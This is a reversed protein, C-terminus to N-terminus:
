REHEGRPELLDRRGGALPQGPHGRAPVRQHVGVRAPAGATGTEPKEGAIGPCPHVAVRARQGAALREQGAQGQREAEGVHDGGLGPSGPDLRQEDVLPEAAQILFRQLLHHRHEVPQALAPAHDADDAVDGLQPLADGGLDAHVLAVM